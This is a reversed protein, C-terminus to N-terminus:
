EKEVYYGHSRLYKATTELIAKDDGKMARVVAASMSLAYDLNQMTPSSDDLSLYVKVNLLHSYIHEAAFLLQKQKDNIDM